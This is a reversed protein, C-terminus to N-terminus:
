NDPSRGSSQHGVHFYGCCGDGGSTTFMVEGRRATGPNVAYEILLSGSGTVTTPSSFTLFGDPNRTASASWGEAGGGLTIVATLCVVEGPDAPSDAVSSSAPTVDIIPPAGAQNIVLTFTAAPGSGGTSTFEVEGRRAVGPNTAHRIQLTGDGMGTAGSPFTIFGDMTSASWGMASGEIDVGVDFVDDMNSATYTTPSISLGQGAQQTFSVVANMPPGSGGEPVITIVRTRASTTMNEELVVRITGDADLRLPSPTITYFDAGGSVSASWGMASGTRTVAITFSDGGASLGSVDTPTTVAEVGQGALQIIEVTEVINTPGGVPTFTITRRRETAGPNIGYTLVPEGVVMEMGMAPFISFGPGASVSAEWNNAGDFPTVRFDITGAGADVTIPMSVDQPPDTEVMVRGPPAMQRFEIVITEPNLDPDVVGMRVGARLTLTAVRETAGRNRDLIFSMVHRVEEPPRFGTQRARRQIRLFNEPDNETFDWGAVTGSLLIDMSPIVTRESPFMAPLTIVNGAPYAADRFEVDIGARAQQRYTASYRRIGGLGNFSPPQRGTRFSRIIFTVSRESRTPNPRIINQVNIAVFGDLAEGPARRVTGHRIRSNLQDGEIWGVTESIYFLEEQLTFPGMAFFQFHPGSAPILGANTRPDPRLNGSANLDTPPTPVAQSLATGVSGLFVIVVFLAATYHYIKRM